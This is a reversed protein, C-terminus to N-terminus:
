GFNFLLVVLCFAGFGEIYIDRQLKSYEHKAKWLELENKYSEFETFKNLENLDNAWAFGSVLLLVFIFLKVIKPKFVKCTKDM